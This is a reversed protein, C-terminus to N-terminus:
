HQTISSQSYKCKMFYIGDQYIFEKPLVQSSLIKTNSEEKKNDKNSVYIFIYNMFLFLYKCRM